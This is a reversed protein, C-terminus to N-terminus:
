VKGKKSDSNQEIIYKYIDFLKKEAEDCKKFLEINDKIINIKAEFEENTLM